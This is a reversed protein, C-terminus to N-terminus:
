MSPDQDLFERLLLDSNRLGIEVLAILFDNKSITKGSKYIALGHAQVIMGQLEPTCRFPVQVYPAETKLKKM